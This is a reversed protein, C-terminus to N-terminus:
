PRVLVYLLRYKNGYGIVNSERMDGTCSLNLILAENLISVLLITGCNRHALFKSFMRILYPSSLFKRMM